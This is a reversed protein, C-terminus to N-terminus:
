FRAGLFELISEEDELVNGRSLADTVANPATSVTNQIDAFTPYFVNRLMGSMTTNAFLACQQITSGVLRSNTTHADFVGQLCANNAGILTRRHEILDLLEYAAQRVAEIDDGFVTMLRNYISTVLDVHALRYRRMETNSRDYFSQYRVFWSDLERRFNEVKESKPDATFKIPKVAAPADPLTDLKPLAIAL